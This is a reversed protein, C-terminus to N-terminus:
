RSSRGGPEAAALRRELAPIDGAETLDHFPGASVVVAFPEGLEDVAHQVAAPLELEGRESPGIARCAAFITPTFRWANVGVLVPEAAERLAALGPKERIRRLRGGADIEILAYAALREEVVGTGRAALLAARDLALVGAGPLAALARLGDPPYLNDANVLLFPEDGAWPEAALLADATGRPVEQRAFAIRLGAPAEGEYRSRVAETGPGVVLCVERIGAAALSELVRDLWPRGGVPVLGKLGRAATERQDASLAPADAAGARLRRGHGAALVIARSAPDTPHLALSSMARETM